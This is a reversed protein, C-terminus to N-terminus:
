LDRRYVGLTLVDLTLTAVMILGAGITVTCMKEGLPDVSTLARGSEPAAMDAAPVSIKLFSPSCLIVRAGDCVVGWAVLPASICGM